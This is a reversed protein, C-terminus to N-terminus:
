STLRRLNESHGALLVIEERAFQHDPNLLSWHEEGPVSSPIRVAVVEIEHKRRLALESANRGLWSKPVGIEVMSFGESVAFFDCVDGGALMGALREAAEQEPFVIRTAGVIELIEAHERNTAEVIIHKVGLKHLYNTVLISREMADGLDVIACEVKEPLMEHLLESNLADAKAAKTTLDRAWQIKDDNQDVVVSSCGRKALSEQMCQGFRGMGVIVFSNM